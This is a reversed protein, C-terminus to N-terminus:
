YNSGKERNRRCGGENGRNERVAAERERVARRKRVEGIVAEM